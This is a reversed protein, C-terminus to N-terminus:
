GPDNEFILNLRIISRIENIKAKIRAPEINIKENKGAPTYNQGGILRQLLDQKASNVKEELEKGSLQHSYQM